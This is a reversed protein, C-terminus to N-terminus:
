RVTRSTVIDAAWSGVRTAPLPLNRPPPATPTLFSRRAQPQRSVRKLAAQAWDRAPREVWIYALNSAALLFALLAAAAVADAAHPPMLLGAAARAQDLPHLLFIHLLYLAYSVEGLWIPGQASLLGGLRGQGCALCLVLGPLLPYLVLDPVGSAFGVALAAAVCWAARPHAAMRAAPPWASLRWLGMGLAFGGLCRLLPGWSRGDWADLSGHSVTAGLVLGAACAAGMAALRPRGHLLIAALLPFAFYAAWETSISWAPGILSPALHWSQVMLLNAPIDVWPRACPVAIWARPVHFSGYSWATYGLRAVLILLYLPAVRGWRRWIFGPLATVRGPPAFAQGYNLALLFGSLVFFLDVALYGRAIIRAALGGILAGPLLLHYAAVWLAAIGRLGTLPKLDAKAM